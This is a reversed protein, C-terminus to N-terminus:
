SSTKPWPVVALTVTAKAALLKSEGEHSYVEAESVSITKGGKLVNAVCSLRAGKAARLLNIKFEISLVGQGEGLLSASAGGATHDAITALVGAHVYGDQQLHRPEIQLTTTCRGEDIEALAIGLENVFRAHAFLARVHARFDPHRPM